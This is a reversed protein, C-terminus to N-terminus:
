IEVYKHELKTEDVEVIRYGSKFDIERSDITPIQAGVASTVIVELNKYRGGANRHYHGCFIARVGSRNFKDLM